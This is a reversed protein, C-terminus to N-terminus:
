RAGRGLRSQSRELGLLHEPGHTSPGGAWLFCWSGKEKRNDRFMCQDWIQEPLTHTETPSTLPCDPSCLPKLCISEDHTINWHLFEPGAPRVSEWGKSTLREQLNITGVKRPIHYSHFLKFATSMDRYGEELCFSSPLFPLCASSSHTSCRHTHM